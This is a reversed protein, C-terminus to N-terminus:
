NLSITKLSEREVWGADWARGQGQLSKALGQLAKGNRHYKKLVTKFRNEANQFQKDELYAFGLEMSIPIFWGQIAEVNLQNQIAIAQNLQDIYSKSDGKLKAMAADLMHMYLPNKPTLDREKAYNELDNLKLYAMSKAYHWYQIATANEEPPSSMEILEKWKEFYLNIEIPMITTSTLYPMRKFYPTAFQVQKNATELAKEYNGALMYVRALMKFNHPLYHLPYNEEVGYKEIYKRDAAIAKNGAQIAEKYYGSLIFIHSPMHLLHGGELDMQNLRYASMLANEPTLSSEWVHINYHNAGLHDPDRMLVSRLLDAAEHTGDKPTGDLNWYSWEDLDLISEAYLTAADLDEPYETTLKKMADRYALRKGKEPNGSYREALAKIYAQEIKSAKLEMAKQSLAYAEEVNEPKIDQNINQGLSLAMGWYAMALDPEIESAKKFSNFALDYNFGYIGTLGLNFLKQVEPNNTSVPHDVGNAGLAGFFLVFAVRLINM